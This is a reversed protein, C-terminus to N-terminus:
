DGDHILETAPNTREFFRQWDARAERRHFELLYGLLERWDRESEKADRLLNERLALIRADDIRRDEERKKDKELDDASRDAHPDFWTVGEPRLSLLWDRCLRTSLCDFENYVEIQRLLEDDGSKMWKEFAVISDGGAKIEQTREPAFFVELNKLSYAPESTQISERVVKYLDVFKKARLLDDVENERTGYSQALEKIAEQHRSAGGYESALRKLATQEYAAYHYVYAGPYKAIRTTIFDLADEFAKREGAKDRAWFATYRNEGNEVHHFGFLYELSGQPSYVPDGEMDFFLDGEVPEPLRFFGRWEVVPLVEVVDKHTTRQVMQLRAQSRLRELTSEQIKPIRVGDELKALQEITTVGASRLKAAQLSGLAAVIRLNGDREWEEGCREAWRCLGCHPCREAVTENADGAVFGSFRTKAHDSYYLYDRLRLKTESNDGLVVYAHEPYEGQELRILESYLCLQVVHKPKAKRALKTDAVEYSYDGLASKKEVRLLFDSYGHWGPATLAGQYIVDVGDRMAQRTREAKEEVTGEDAIEAVSRGASKLRALYAREHQLGKEKLIASYSDDEKKPDALVGRMMQIDLATAHTCGLFNLLDTASYLPQTLHLKM